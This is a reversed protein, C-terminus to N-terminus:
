LLQNSLEAIKNDYYKKIDLAYTTEILSAELNALLDIYNEGTFTFLDYEGLDIM